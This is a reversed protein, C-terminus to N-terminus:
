TEEERLQVFKLYGEKLGWELLAETPISGRISEGTWEERSNLNKYVGCGVEIPGNGYGDQTHLNTLHVRRGQIQMIDM